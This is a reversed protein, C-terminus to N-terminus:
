RARTAGASTEPASASVCCARLGRSCGFLARPNVSRKSRSSRDLATRGADLRDGGLASWGVATTSSRRRLSLRRYGKSLRKIKACMALAFHTIERFLIEKVKSRVRQIYRAYEAGESAYASLQGAYERRSYVFRGSGKQERHHYAPNARSPQESCNM